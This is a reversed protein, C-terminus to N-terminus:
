LFFLIYANFSSKVVAICAVLTLSGALSSIAAPEQDGAAGKDATAAFGGYVLYPDEYLQFSGIINQKFISM